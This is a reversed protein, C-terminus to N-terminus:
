SKKRSEESKKKAAEALKRLRRRERVDAWVVWANRPALRRARVLQRVAWSRLRNASMGLERALDPLRWEHAASQGDGIAIETLGSRSVLKRVSTTTYGKQSRPTRYGERNLQSAIEVMTRGEQRLEVVKALMRDYSGMAEYRSVTRAVEHRTAPAGRWAIEVGTIESAPRVNVTVREVLLRVIEKRDVPTTRPAEWLSAIDGSLARIRGEEEATIVPPQEKLFRDYEERLDREARLAQEWKRELGRAVLRNEPEVAQYQREARAADYAARELRQEWHRRINERERRVDAIARLSLELAAPELATLVQKAVLDDIARSALGSCSSDEYKSRTCLYYAQSVSRYTAIMRRGCEGCILLGPLLATGSRPVGPSGAQCRNRLLRQRNGLYREWTIYSPLRDRLLVKWEEMPVARMRVKGSAEATRRHDVRRRGYSYAGAYIPHHLMRHLAAPSAPRWELEGRRPGRHVRMGLRIDNRRLYRSLRTYSGLEDFKDFILKVVSRAQEDPDLIVEGSPLKFYGFPVEAILEGREAKHLKGRELRNRMTVSEVESMTGKLGLVLRDNTDNPDYLGDQDALLTGFLACLELLHYWDKSSRSLRSLELGLVLGVHDLTVEALLRQFGLRQSASKASRGQDEDIVIIRDAPWGLSAAYQALAYQRERSERHDLIQRPSSQRVYVIALRALHTDTLRDVRRGRPVPMPAAVASQHPTATSGSGDRDHTSM